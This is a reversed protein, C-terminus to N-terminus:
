KLEFVQLNPNKIFNLYDNLQELCEDYTFYHESLCCFYGDFFYFYLNWIKLDHYEGNNRKKSGTIKKLPNTHGEICIKLLNDVPMFRGVCKILIMKNM